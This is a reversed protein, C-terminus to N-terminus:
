EHSVEAGEGGQSDFSSLGGSCEQAFVEMVAM